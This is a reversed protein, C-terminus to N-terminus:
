NPTIGGFFMGFCLAQERSKQSRSESEFTYKRDLYLRNRLRRNAFLQPLLCLLGDKENCSNYADEPTQVIM